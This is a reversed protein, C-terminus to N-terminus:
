FNHVLAIGASNHNAMPVLFYNAFEKKHFKATGLGVLTGLLAGAAVDSAFHRNADLRSAGILGALAFAPIGVHPGYFIESVAALAFAGSTHGSPFSDRGNGDPRGRRTAFKLGVTVTETLVLAELMAETVVATKETHAFKAIGFAVTTAGALVLPEAAINIVDDFTKGLPRNQFQQQISTDKQHIVITLGAGAALAVVHWPNWVTEKVDNGIHRPLEKFLWTGTCHHHEESSATCAIREAALAPQTLLLAIMLTTLIRQMCDRTVGM